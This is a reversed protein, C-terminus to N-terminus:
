EPLLEVIIENAALDIKKVVKKLAPVLIEENDNNKVVYVDNAGTKLIDALRGIHNGSIDKVDLNLLQYIYYENEQLPELQAESIKLYAGRFQEAKEITDVGALNMILYGNHLSISDIRMLEIVGKRDVLIEQRDLFREPFDTIPFVKLSGNLNHPKNILGVTILVPSTAM